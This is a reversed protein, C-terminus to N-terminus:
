LVQVPDIIDHAQLGGALQLGIVWLQLPTRNRETRLPHHIWADWWNKIHQNIIPLFVYHLCWIHTEDDKNLLGQEEM